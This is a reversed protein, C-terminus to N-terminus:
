RRLNNQILLREKSLIEPLSLNRVESRPNHYPRQYLKKTNNIKNCKTSELNKMLYGTKPFNFHM